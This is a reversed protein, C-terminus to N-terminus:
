WQIWCMWFVDETSIISFSVYFATCWVDWSESLEFVLIVWDLLMRYTWGWIPPNKLTIKLQVHCTPEQLVRAEGSVGHRLNEKWSEAQLQWVEKALVVWAHSNANPIRVVGGRTGPVRGLRGSSRAQNVCVNRDENVSRSFDREGATSSKM